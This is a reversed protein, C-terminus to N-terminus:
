LRDPLVRPAAPRDRPAGVANRQVDRDVADHHPETVRRVAEILDVQLNVAPALEPQREGLAKLELVDRPLVRSGASPPGSVHAMM